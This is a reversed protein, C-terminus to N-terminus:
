CEIQVHFARDAAAGTTDFTKVSLARITGEKGSISIFGPEASGGFIGLGITGVWSCRSLDRKFRVTYSGEGIRTISRLGRSRLRSGDPNAVAWCEDCPTEQASAATTLGILSVIGLLIATASTFKAQRM